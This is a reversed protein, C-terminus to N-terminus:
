LERGRFHLVGPLPLAARRPDGRVDGPIDARWRAPVSELTLSAGVGWEGGMGIGYLLRLFLFINYSTAFGSLVEIVSYFVIDLM